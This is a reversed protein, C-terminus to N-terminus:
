SNPPLPPEIKVDAAPDTIDIQLRLTLPREFGFCFSCSEGEEVSYAVVIRVPYGGDEALWTEILINEPMVQDIIEVNDPSQGLVDRVGSGQPVLGLIASKDLRVPFARVGNVSQVEGAVPILLSEFILQELYFRPSTYTSLILLPDNSDSGPPIGPQWANGSQRWWVEEGIVIVEIQVAEAFAELSEVFAGSLQFTGQFRDPAQFTGDLEATFDGNGSLVELNSVFSYGTLNAIADQQVEILGDTVTISPGRTEDSDGNCAGFAVLSAIIAAAGFSWRTQSM